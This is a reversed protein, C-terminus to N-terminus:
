AFKLLFPSLHTKEMCNSDMSSNSSDKCNGDKYDGDKARIVSTSKKTTDKKSQEMFGFVM